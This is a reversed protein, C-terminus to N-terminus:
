GVGRQEYLCSVQEIKLRWDYDCDVVGRHGYHNAFYQTPSMKKDKPTVTAFLSVCEDISSREIV